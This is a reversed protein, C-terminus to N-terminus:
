LSPAPEEDNAYLGKIWTLARAMLCNKAPTQGKQHFKKIKNLNNTGNHSKYKYKRVRPIELTIDKYSKGIKEKYVCAPGSSDSCSRARLITFYLIDATGIKSAMSSPDQGCNNCIAHRAPINFRANQGTIKLGSVEINFINNIAQKKKRQKKRTFILYICANQVGGRIDEVGVVVQPYDGTLYRSFLHLNLHDEATLM